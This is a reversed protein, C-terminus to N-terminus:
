ELVVRRSVYLTNLLGLTMCIMCFLAVYPVSYHARFASGFFGERILEVCHVMPLALVIQQATHPLADVIFAAGSLPFLFYTV